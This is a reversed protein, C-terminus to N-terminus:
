IKEGLNKELWSIKKWNESLRSNAENILHNLYSSTVLLKGDKAIITEFHPSGIVEVVIKGRTSLIGKRRVGSVADLFKQAHNLSRCAVHIIFSEQKFYVKNQPLNHLIKEIEKKKLKKHTVFIWKTDPKLKEVTLLMIRGACSSTTYYDEKKNIIELLKKIRTDFSQKKSKDKKSLTQKKDNEFSGM